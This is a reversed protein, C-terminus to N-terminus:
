PTISLIVGALLRHFLWGGVLGVSGTLPVGDVCHSNGLIEHLSDVLNDLAGVRVEGLQHPGRDALLDGSFVGFCELTMEGAAEHINSRLVGIRFERGGVGHVAEVM